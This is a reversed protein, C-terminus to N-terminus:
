SEVVRMIRAPTRYNWASTIVGSRSNAAHVIKGDGIYLGVHDIGGRAYFVLDGPQMQAADVPTGVYSQSASNRPLSVGATNRLVYQVFGSCDFGSPTSGGYVYRSGVFGLAYKVIEDRKAKAAEAAKEAAKEEESVRPALSAGQDLSIYAESGDVSIKFLNNPLKQLIDYEQAKKAVTLVKSFEIDNYINVSDSDITVILDDDKGEAFAPAASGAILSLSLVGITAIKSFKM